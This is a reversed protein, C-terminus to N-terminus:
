NPPYKKWKNINKLSWIKAKKMSPVPYRLLREPEDEEADATDFRPTYIQTQRDTQERDNRPTIRKDSVDLKLGGVLM